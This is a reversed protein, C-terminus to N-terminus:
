PVIGQSAADADAARELHLGGEGPSLLARVLEHQADFYFTQEVRGFHLVEVGWVAIRDGKEPKLKEPGTTRFAYGIRTQMDQENLQAFPVVLGQKQPLVSAVLPIAFVPVVGVGGNQGIAVTPRVFDRHKSPDPPAPPIPLADSSGRVTLGKKLFTTRTGAITDELDLTDLEFGPTQQNDSTAFAMTCTLTGVIRHDQVLKSEYAMSWSRGAHEIRMHEIGCFDQGEYLRLWLEHGFLKGPEPEVTRVKDWELAFDGRPTPPPNLAAPVGAEVARASIGLPGRPVRLSVLDTRSSPPSTDDRATGPATSPPSLRRLNLRIDDPALDSRRHEAIADAVAARLSEETTIDQTGYGTLIDGPRCGAARAPSDPAFEVIVVGGLPPRKLVALV